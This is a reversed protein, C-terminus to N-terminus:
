ICIFRYLLLYIFIYIYYTCMSEIGTHGREITDTKTFFIFSHLVCVRVYRNAHICTAYVRIHIRRHKWFVGAYNYVRYNNNDLVYNNYIIYISWIYIRIYVHPHIHMFAVLLFFFCFFSFSSFFSCSRTLSLFCHFLFQSLCLFIFIYIRIREHSTFTEKIKDHLNTRTLWVLGEM